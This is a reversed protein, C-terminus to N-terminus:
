SLYIYLISTYISLHISPHLLISISLHICIYISLYIAEPCVRGPPHFGSTYCRVELGEGAAGRTCLHALTGSDLGGSFLVGIRKAGAPVCRRLARVLLEQIAAVRAEVADEGAGTAPAGALTAPAGAPRGDDRPARIM